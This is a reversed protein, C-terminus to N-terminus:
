FVCVVGLLFFAVATLFLYSVAALANERYLRKQLFFGFGVATAAFILADIWASLVAPGFAHSFDNSGGLLYSVLTNAIDAVPAVFMWIFITGAIWQRYGRRRLSLLGALGALSAWVMYPAVSIVLPSYPQDPGFDYRVHGWEGPSPLWVFEILQGGQVFVAAAHAAEHVATFVLAGPIVVVLHPWHRRFFGALDHKLTDLVTEQM